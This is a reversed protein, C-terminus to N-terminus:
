RLGFHCIYRFLLSAGNAKLNAQRISIKTTADAGVATYLAQYQQPTQANVQALTGTFSSGWKNKSNDACVELKNVDLQLTPVTKQTGM